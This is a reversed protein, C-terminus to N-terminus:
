LDSYKYATDCLITVVNMPRSETQKFIKLLKLSAAVNAGSSYGVYLGQDTALRKTVELVEEDTISLIDDALAPDWQPPILGYGTGQILHQPNIVMNQATLISFRASERCRSTTAGLSTM